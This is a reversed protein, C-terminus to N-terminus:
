TLSWATFTADSKKKLSVTFRLNYRFISELVVELQFWDLSKEFIKLPKPTMGSELAQLWFSSWAKSDIQLWSQSWDKSDYRKCHLLLWMLELSKLTSWLDFCKWRDLTISDRLNHTFYLYRIISWIPFREYVINSSM